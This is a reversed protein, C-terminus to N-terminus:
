FPVRFARAASLRSVTGIGDAGPRLVYIREGQFIGLAIHGEVDIAAVDGIQALSPHVEEMLAEAMAAHDAYGAKRLHRLGGTLTSYRGRYGAAFDEGTMAQVAGAAFLACDHEGWQFPKAAVAQAYNFLATRWFSYRKM